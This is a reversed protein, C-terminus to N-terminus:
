KTNVWLRTLLGKLSLTIFKCSVNEEKLLRKVIITTESGESRPYTKLLEVRAICVYVPLQLTTHPLYM